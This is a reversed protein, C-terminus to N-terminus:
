NSCKPISYHEPLNFYQLGNGLDTNGEGIGPKCGVINYWRINDSNPKYFKNNNFKIKRGISIYRVTNDAAAFYKFESNEFLPKNSDDDCPYITSGYYFIWDKPNSSTYKNFVCNDIIMRYGTEISLLPQNYMREGNYCDSFLSNKIIVPKISNSISSGYNLFQGYFQCSDFTVRNIFNHVAANTKGIFVCKLFYHNYSYGYGEARSPNDLSTGATVALGANYAYVNNYFYGNSCLVKAQTGEPEIDMGYAPKTTIKKIGAYNFTSNCVTINKGGVWSFNNRGSNYCDIKNLYINNTLPKSTDDNLFAGGICINDVAFDHLKLNEFTCNRINYLYLGYCNSIEYPKGGLGWYGGFTYNDSNGNADINKISINECDVLNVFNGITAVLKYDYSPNENHPASPNYKALDYPKNGTEPEFTGLFMADKYIIRTGTTGEISVNKINQFDFLPDGQYVPLKNERGKNVFQKGVMYVGPPILLRVNGGNKIIFAAAKKFAVHDNTRGDGRAGFDTKINKIVWKSTNMNGAGTAKVQASV